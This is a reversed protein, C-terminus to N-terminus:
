FRFQYSVKVFFQRSDNMYGRSTHLGALGAPDSMLGHNLNQLDSNYGVYIATGPHVLYTILFDANFQKQTPLYTYPYFTNGPTNALVSNYQLIVRLSLQPTFQWNWKSRVIHNSFIGRGIGMGPVQALALRYQNDTARLREFLYTNEIKLPKLPRFSLTANASDSRSLLSQPLANAAPVFNVGNGWYYSAGVVVKKFYGTQFFTGSQHEHYDFNRNVSLNLYSFDQPRLRERLEDYPFVYFLTQGRAEIKVYPDYYTDLRNGEHDFVYRHILSPGWSLIWGKKPRFRYLITNYVGRIDVRNVFGPVTVFGPSIDNYIGEYSFHLGDRKLDLKDAPGSYNNGHTLNGSNFPFLNTECNNSSYTSSFVNGLLNSSSVVAQGDLTWNANFKLRTDLGGVRNYEGTTPCEWDTYLAGVSSEKFIDRSVRAIAFYSRTGALPFYSAVAQGPGRDDTAMFGASYPGEKGTLRIGASPDQINRTFFLNLPTRFYDENELFFPRKEPFYVEFRQNVTIQPDESEVQSFDPNATMDVVFHDHIVFKADMGPQGQVDAHQFYPNSPDRTDLGRFSRMVGYPILEISRGPSIGELGHLTAAQGLRGAVKYSVKPWFADENKRNIGRYLIIGWDQEQTAPFRLSKFPIAMWVVFGRSTVKGRSDWVTDFSTDWNGGVEDRTAETYIADWQVGLPTTQFEYARRRDHFTDFLVAVQDDDYVDERRSMRARVKKPDDFCVFVLYLNKEDYGLYAETEESVAAGDYPNRQVFGTIRAMQQATEGEPKMGLFDELMPAHALRPITLTPPAVLPKPAPKVEPKKVPPEPLQASPPPNQPSSEPARGPNAPNGEPQPSPNQPTTQPNQPTFGQQSSEAPAAVSINQARPWSTARAQEAGSLALVALIALKVFDKLFRRRVFALRSAGREEGAGSLSTLL